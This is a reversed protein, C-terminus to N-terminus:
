VPDLELKGDTIAFGTSSFYKTGAFPRISVIVSAAISPDTVIMQMVTTAM